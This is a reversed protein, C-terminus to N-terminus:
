NFVSSSIGVTSYVRGFGSKKVLSHDRGGKLLFARIFVIWMPSEFKSKSKVIGVKTKEGLRAAM